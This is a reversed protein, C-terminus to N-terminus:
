QLQHDFYSAAPVGNDDCDDEEDDMKACLIEPVVMVERHEGEAVIRGAVLVGKITHHAKVIHDVPFSEPLQRFAAM